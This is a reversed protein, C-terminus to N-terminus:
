LSKNHARNHSDIRKGSMYSDVIGIAWCCVILASSIKMILYDRETSFTHVEKIITTIDLGTNTSEINALITNIKRSANLLIVILCASVISILAIGRMYHRQVIQGLGPYALGSLCAGKLSNNM